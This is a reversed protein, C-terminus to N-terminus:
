GMGLMGAPGADAPQRAQAMAAQLDMSSRSLIDPNENQIIKKLTAAKPHSSVELYQGFTLFGSDLFRQMDAEFLQRYTATDGVSAVSVDLHIRQVREADFTVLRGGNLDSFQIPDKYAQVMCKIALLDRDRQAQFYSEFLDRNTMTAQIIQQQFLAAPTGSSPNVGRMPGTVGSVQDMWGLMNQVLEFSGAPIANSAIQAPLQAGPRLNIKIVGNAKTWEAAFDDITLGTPIVDEPVLLVGKASSSLSYDLMSLLRNLWRQPDIVHELLGWTEGDTLRALGLVFPHGGHWYPSRRKSLLYGYPTTFCVFWKPEYRMTMSLPEFGLEVRERNVREIESEAGEYEFVQGTEPDHVIHVFEHDEYWIELVRHFGVDYSNYFDFGDTRFFGDSSTVYNPMFRDEPRGGVAGMIDDAKNRNFNGFEDVAFLRIMADTTLDHVQGIIRLDRLRRDKIDLNYFLRYQDVAAIDVEDRNTSPNYAIDVRWAHVGSMLHEHFQDPEVLDIRNLRNVARLAVNVAEIDEPDAGEVAFAATEGMNERFQGCLNRAIASVQNIVWPIRNQRRILEEETIMKGPNDPDSIAESWQRGREYDRVRSRISRYGSRARWWHHALDVLSILWSDGGRQGYERTDTRLGAVPDYIDTRGQM